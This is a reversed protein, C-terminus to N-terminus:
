KPSRDDDTPWPVLLGIDAAIADLSQQLHEEIDLCRLALFHYVPAYERARTQNRMEVLALALAGREISSLSWLAQDLDNRIM